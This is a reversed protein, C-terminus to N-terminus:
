KNMINKWNSWFHNIIQVYAKDKLISDNLTLLGPVRDYKGIDFVGWVLHHDCHFCPFVGAQKNIESNYNYQATTSRWRSHRLSIVQEEGLGFGVKIDQVFPSVWTLVLEWSLRASCCSARFTCTLGKNIIIIINIIIGIIVYLCSRVSMFVCVWWFLFCTRMSMYFVSKDVYFFVSEGVCFVCEWWCVFCVRVLMCFVSEGVYLVSEIVYLVCEWQCFVCELWCVFCRYVDLVM